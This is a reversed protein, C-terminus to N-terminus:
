SEPTLDKNSSLNPSGMQRHDNVQSCIPNGEEMFGARSGGAEQLWDLGGKVTNNAAKTM